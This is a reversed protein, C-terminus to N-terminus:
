VSADQESRGLMPPRLAKRQQANPLQLGVAYICSLLSLPKQKQRGWSGLKVSFLWLVEEYLARKGLLHQLCLSSPLLMASHM